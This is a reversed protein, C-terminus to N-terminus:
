NKPPRRPRRARSQCRPGRGRRRARSSVERCPWPCPCLLRFPMLAAARALAVDCTPKEPEEDRDPAEAGIRGSRIHRLVDAGAHQMHAAAVSHHLSPRDAAADAVKGHLVCSSRPRTRPWPRPGPRRWNNVSARHNKESSHEARASINARHPQFYTLANPGRLCTPRKHPRRPMRPQSAKEPAPPLPDNGRDNGHVASSAALPLM